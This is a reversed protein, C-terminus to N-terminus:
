THLPKRKGNSIQRKASMFYSCIETNNNAMIILQLTMINYSNENSRCLYFSAGVCVCAQTGRYTYAVSFVM